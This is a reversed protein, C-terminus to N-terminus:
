QTNKCAKNFDFWGGPVFTVPVNEGAPPQEGTSGLYAQGDSRFASTLTGQDNTVLSNGQWMGYLDFEPRYDPQFSGFAGYNYVHIHIQQHDSNLGFHKNSFGVTIHMFKFQEGHPTCLRATGSIYPYGLRSSSPEAMYIYLVFDGAPTHWKGIGQWIPLIHFSGGLFFAWPATVAMVFFYLVTGLLALQLLSVFCGSFCSRTSKPKRTQAPIQIPDM